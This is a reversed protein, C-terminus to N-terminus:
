PEVGLDHLAAALHGVVACYADQQDKKLIEDRVALAAVERQIRELDRVAEPVILEPETAARLHARAIALQREKARAVVQEVRAVGADTLLYRPKDGDLVKVFGDRVLEDLTEEIPPEIAPFAFGPERQMQRECWICRGDALRAVCPGLAGPHSCCADVPDIPITM